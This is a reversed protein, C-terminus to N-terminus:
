QSIPNSGPPHIWRAYERALRRASEKKPCPIEAHAPNDDQPTAIVEEGLGRVQGATVAVVGIHRQDGRSFCREATTLSARDVSVRKAQTQDIFAASSLRNRGTSRDMVIWDSVVRRYLDESDPIHLHDQAGVSWESM